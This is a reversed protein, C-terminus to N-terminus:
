QTRVVIFKLQPNATGSGSGFSLLAEKGAPVTLRFYGASSGLVSAGITANDPVSTLKLPYYGLPVFVGTERSGFTKSYIDRFNWSKHLYRPDTSVGLDDLYNAVAFDALVPLPDTLLAEGLTGVGVKQTNTFRAWVSADSPFFRDVAYRLFAWSAGRTSLDNADGV